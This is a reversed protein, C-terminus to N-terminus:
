YGNRVELDAPHPAPIKIFGVEDFSDVRVPMVVVRRSRMLRERPVPGLASELVTPACIRLTEGVTLLTISLKPKEM